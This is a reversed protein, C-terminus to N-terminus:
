RGPRVSNLITGAAKRAQESKPTFFKAKCWNKIAKTQTGLTVATGLGVAIVTAAVKLCTLFKSDRCDKFVTAYNRRKEEVNQLCARLPKSSDNLERYMDRCAAYKSIASGYQSHEKAHLTQYTHVQHKGITTKQKAADVIKDIDLVQVRGKTKYRALYPAEAVEALIDKELRTMEDKFIKNLSAAAAIPLLLEEIDQGVIEDVLLLTDSTKKLDENEPSPLLNNVFNFELSLSNFADSPQQMRKDLSVEIEKLKQVASGREEVSLQLALHRFVVEIPTIGLPTMLYDELDARYADYQEIEQSSNFRCRAIEVDEPTLSLEFLEAESQPDKEDLELKRIKKNVNRTMAELFQTDANVRDYFFKINNLVNDLNECDQLDVEIINKILENM